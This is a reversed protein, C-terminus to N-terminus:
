KENKSMETKRLCRVSTEQERKVKIFPLALVFYYMYACEMRLSSNYIILVFAMVAMIRALQCYLQNEPEKKEVIKAARYVRIFFIAYVVLGTLGTELMIFSSSFWVYNMHRYSTYFPTNLFAYSSSYDCNGLGLGFLKKPWTNLFRNWSITVATLRNIDDSNTYGKDSIAYNLISDLQFWESFYPFIAKLLQIGIVFGLASFIIVLLKRRSFKTIMTAMVTILVFEFFFMKLETLAAILLSIGCRSVFKLLSTQNNMYKLMYCTVIIMLYINTYGNYGKTSGFIGGINDQHLKIVFSQYLTVVLNVYFLGDMLRMCSDATERNMMLTCLMFFAFFRFNNRIGWLYYLISQYELMQGVITLLIFVMVVRM